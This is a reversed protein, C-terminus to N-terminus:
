VSMQFQPILFGQFVPTNPMFFTNINDAPKGIEDPTLVPRQQVQEQSGDNKSAFVETLKKNSGSSSTKFRITMQGSEKSAWEADSAREREEGRRRGEAERAV